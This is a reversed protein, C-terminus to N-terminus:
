STSFSIAAPSSFIIVNLFVYINYNLPPPPWFFQVVGGGGGGGRGINYLKFSLITFTSKFFDSIFFFFIWPISFPTYPTIGGALIVNSSFITQKVEFKCPLLM